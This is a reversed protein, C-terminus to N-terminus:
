QKRGVIMDVSGHAELEVHTLMQSQTSVFGAHLMADAIVGREFSMDMGQLSTSLWSIVSAAPATKEEMLGDSTVM